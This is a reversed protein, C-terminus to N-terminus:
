RTHGFECSLSLEECNFSSFPQDVMATSSQSGIIPDGDIHSSPQDSSFLPEGVNAVIPSLLLRIFLTPKTRGDKSIDVRLDKVEVTAKPTQLTVALM